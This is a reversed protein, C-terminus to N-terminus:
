FGRTGTILVRSIKNNWKWSFESDFFRWYWNKPTLFGWLSGTSKVFYNAFFWCVTVQHSKSSKSFQLEINSDSWSWAIMSLKCVYSENKMWKENLDLWMLNGKWWNYIWILNVTWVLTSIADPKSSLDLYTYFGYHFKNARFTCVLDM